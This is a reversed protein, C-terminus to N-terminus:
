ICFEGRVPFDPKSRLYELYKDASTIPTKNENCFGSFSAALALMLGVSFMYKKM